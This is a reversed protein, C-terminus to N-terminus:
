CCGLVGISLWLCLRAQEDLSAWRPNPNLTRSSCFSVDGRERLAKKYAAYAWFRFGEVRLM